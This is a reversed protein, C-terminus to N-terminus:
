SNRPVLRPAVGPAPTPVTLNPEATGSTPPPPPGLVVVMLTMGAARPSVEAAPKPLPKTVYWAVTRTRRGFAESTAEVKVEPLWVRLLTRSPAASVTDAGVCTLARSSVVPPPRVRLPARVSNLPLRSAEPVVLATVPGPGSWNVTSPDEAPRTPTVP